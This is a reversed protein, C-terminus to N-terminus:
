EENLSTHSLCSGILTYIYSGSSEEGSKSTKSVIVVDKDNNISARPLKNVVKVWRIPGLIRNPSVAMTCTLSVFSNYKIEQQPAQSIEANFSLTFLSFVLFLLILGVSSVCYYVLNPQDHQRIYM